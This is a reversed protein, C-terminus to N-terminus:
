AVYGKAEFLWHGWRTSNQDESRFLVRWSCGRVQVAEGGAAAVEWRWCGWVQKNGVFECHGSQICQSRSVIIRRRQEGTSQSLNKIGGLDKSTSLFLCWPLPRRPFKQGKPSVTGNDNERKKIGGFREKLFLIPLRYSLWKATNLM